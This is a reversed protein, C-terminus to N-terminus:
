LLWKDVLRRPGLLGDLWNASQGQKGVYLTQMDTAHRSVQVLCV